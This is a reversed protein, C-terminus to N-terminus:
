PSRPAHGQGTPKGRRGSRTGGGLRPLRRREAVPPLLEDPGTPLPAGQQEEIRAKLEQLVRIQGLKQPSLKEWLVGQPKPIATNTRIM